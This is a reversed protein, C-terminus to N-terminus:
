KKKYRGIVLAEQLVHGAMAREIEARAAGETLSLETDLAYLRFFYRHTSPEYEKPPCPGIYGNHGAGNRGAIGASAGEQIDTTMAPINFLIWHDFIGDPKLAPPVDRDEVILVLSRAAESVGSISIPPSLQEGDCTYRPPIDGGVDFVPSAIALTTIAMSVTNKNNVTGSQPFPTFSRNIVRALSASWENRFGENTTYYFSSSL